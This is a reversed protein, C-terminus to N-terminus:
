VWSFTGVVCRREVASQPGGGVTKLLVYLHTRRRGRNLDESLADWGVPPAAVPTPSRLLVAHVLKRPVDPDAKAFVYRYGGGAGRALDDLGAAPTHQM